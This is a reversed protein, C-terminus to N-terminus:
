IRSSPSVEELIIKKLERAASNLPHQCDHILCISRPPIIEKLPIQVIEKKELAELAMAQPIFALGLECKVLPLIQDATATETDPLLELGHSLFLQNYFQFTMTERDLCILPYQALERLSLTKGALHSFTTGGVLIEQFPYVATQRLPPEVPAPTSIIAFDVKGSRVSEIAQPSSYNYIKLRIGPHATHFAKLKHLLFINLATESAGISVSGHTLTASDSLEEEAAFLQTMASAVHTYLQEGEPTLQVGRNTRVFLTTNLQQELNNMARTINPQSNGLSHAAKTFNHYKAVYYFIKYYEYNVNMFCRQYILNFHDVYRKYNKSIVTGM